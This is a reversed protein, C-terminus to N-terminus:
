RHSIKQICINVDNVDGSIISDIGKVFFMGLCLHTMPLCRTDEIIQWTQTSFLITRGDLTSVAGLEGDPSWCLSASGSALPIEAIVRGSFADWITLSPVIGGGVLYKGDPSWSLLCIEANTKALQRYSRGNWILLRCDEGSSVLHSGNPSWALALIGNAHGIIVEGEGTVADWFGISSYASSAITSGDPSWAVCGITAYHYGRVRKVACGSTADVVYVNRDSGGTVLERGDPSWSVSRFYDDLAQRRREEIRAPKGFAGIAPEYVPEFTWRILGTKLDILSVSRDDGALALLNGCPSRVACHYRRKHPSLDFKRRGDVLIAVSKDSSGSALWKGDPTRALARVSGRHNHPTSQVYEDTIPRRGLWKPFDNFQATTVTHDAGGVIIESGDASWVLSLISDRSLRGYRTIRWSIGSIVVVHGSILGAALYDGNPSWGICIVKAREADVTAFLEACEIRATNQWVASQVVQVVGDTGGSALFKGDPSFAVSRVRGSHPALEEVKSLSTPDLIVVVGNAYGVAIFLGSPQWAVSRAWDQGFKASGLLTGDPFSWLRVNGDASCSVIAKENPAWAVSKLADSHAAVCLLLEKERPNWIRLARDDTGVALYRGSPSWALASVEDSRWGAVTCLMLRATADGKDITTSSKMDALPLLSSIFKKVLLYQLATVGSPKCISIHDDDLPIPIVGPLGPDSSTEDVVLLPGVPRTEFFVQVQCGLEPLRNRFWVNLERLRADNERLDITAASPRLLKWYSIWNAIRAGSNPTGLFTIGRVNRSIGMWEVRNMEIAHRLMQKVLLGGLSHVIFFIPRDGLGNAELVAAAMTARDPLPLSEGRWETSSAPYGLSWIGTSPFSQTFESPWCIGNKATWTLLPHGDLGHVFVIDAVRNSNDCGAIRLLETTGM